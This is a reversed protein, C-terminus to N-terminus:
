FFCVTKIAYETKTRSKHKMGLFYIIFLCKLLKNYNIVRSVVIFM